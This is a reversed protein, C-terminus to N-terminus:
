RYLARKRVAFFPSRDNFDPGRDPGRPCPEINGLVMGIDFSFIRNGGIAKNEINEALDFRYGCKAQGTNGSVSISGPKAADGISFPDNEKADVLTIKGDQAHQVAV